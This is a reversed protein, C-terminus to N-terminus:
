TVKFSDITAKLKKSQHLVIDTSQQSQAIQEENASSIVVLDQLHGEVEKNTYQQEESATALQSTQSSLSQCLTEVTVLENKANKSKNLTDQATQTSEELINVVVTIKKQLEEITEDIALTAEDTKGSLNRVEDAVVAFGKGQEGARAAEIAANLSLLNIQSALEQIAKTVSQIKASQENLESIKEQGSLLKENLGDIEANSERSIELAQENAKGLKNSADDTANISLNIESNVTVLEHVSSSISNVRAVADSFGQTTLNLKESMKHSALNIAEYSDRIEHFAEQLSGIFRNFSRAIDSFEDHGDFNIRSTLDRNGTSIAKVMHNLANLRSNINSAILFVFGLTFLLLVLGLIHLTVKKETIYDAILLSINKANEMIVAEAEHATERMLGRLGENHEFGMKLHLNILENYVNFYSDYVPKVAPYEAIAIELSKKSSLLQELTEQSHHIRFEYDSEILEVMLHELSISNTSVIAAELKKRSQDIEKELGDKDYIQHSLKALEVFSKQYTELKSLTTSNNTGRNFLMLYDENLKVLDKKIHVMVDAHKELYKDDMRSFFDKEHRRLALLEAEIFWNQSAVEEAYIIKNIIISEFVGYFLMSITVLSALIILKLRITMG